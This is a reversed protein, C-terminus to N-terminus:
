GSRVLVLCTWHSRVDEFDYWPIPSGHLDYEVGHIIVRQGPKMDAQPIMWLRGYASAFERDQNKQVQLRSSLQFPELMNGQYTVSVPNAWDRYQSNDRSSYALAATMVTVATSGLATM